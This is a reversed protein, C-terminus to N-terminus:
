PGRRRVPATVGAAKAISQVLDAVAKRQDASLYVFDRAMSVFVEDHVLDGFPHLVPAEAKVGDGSAALGDFFHSVPVQLTRALDFLRSASVRNAGSEYKQIQQFTVGISQALETQTLGQASRLARIRQGVAVDVQNM